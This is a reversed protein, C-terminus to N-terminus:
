YETAHEKILKEDVQHKPTKPQTNEMYGICFLFQPKLNTQFVEQVEKYLEGMEISAVFISTQLGHSQCELMIREAVRGTSLWVNKSEEVSFFGCVAPASAFSRYNLKGLFKGINFFRIAPPIIFSMLFPMRLAYGPMGDVKKSLNNHIWRSMEKRFSPKTYALQLGQATLSALHEINKKSETFFITIPPQFEYEKSIISNVRDIISRDVGQPEFVGRANMRKPITLLMSEYQHNTSTSDHFFVEAILNEKFHYEVRELMGFYKAALVLNELCCGISIHTDRGRSDAQPLRLAPNLYIKCSSNSIEFLWPQTNHTSPALVAYQLLFEIKEALTKKESLEAPIIM